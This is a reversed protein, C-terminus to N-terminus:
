NNPPTIYAWHTVQWIELIRHVDTSWYEARGFVNYTAVFYHGTTTRILCPTDPDPVGTGKKIWEIM